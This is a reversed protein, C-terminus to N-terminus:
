GDQAAASHVCLRCVRRGKSGQQGIEMRVRESKHECITTSSLPRMASAPVCSSSSSARPRYQSRQCRCVTEPLRVKGEDGDSVFPSM